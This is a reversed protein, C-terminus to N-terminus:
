VIELRIPVNKGKQETKIKKSSTERVIIKMKLVIIQQLKHNTTKLGDRLSIKKKIMNTIKIKKLDRFNIFNRSITEVRVKKALLLSSRRALKHKLKEKIENLV